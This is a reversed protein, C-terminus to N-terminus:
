GASCRSSKRKWQDSYSNRKRCNKWNRKWLVCERGKKETINIESVPRNYSPWGTGSEFKTGTEFLDTGCRVCKYLAPEKHEEFTCTFPAETGKKTTIRYQEPTLQKKWESDSKIIKDVVEVKNKRINYIKIKNM